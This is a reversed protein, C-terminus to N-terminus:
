LVFHSLNKVFENFDIKDNNDEDSKHFDEEAKALDFAEGMETAIEKYLAILENKEIYGNDNEDIGNFADKLLEIQDNTFKSKVEPTLQNIDAM